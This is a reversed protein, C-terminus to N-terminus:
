IGVEDWFKSELIERAEELEGEDLEFAEGNKDWSAFDAVGTIDIRKQGYKGDTNEGYCKDIEYHFYCEITVDIAKDEREVILSDSVIEKM